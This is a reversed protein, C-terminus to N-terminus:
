EPPPTGLRADRKFQERTAVTEQADLGGSELANFLHQRAEDFEKEAFAINFLVLEAKAREYASLRDLQLEGMKERAAAFRGANMAAITENFVQSVRPSMEVVDSVSFERIAQPPRADQAVLAFPTAAIVIASAPALWSRKNSKHM